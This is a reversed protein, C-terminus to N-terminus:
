EKITKERINKKVVAFWAAGVQGASWDNDESELQEALAEKALDEYEEYM